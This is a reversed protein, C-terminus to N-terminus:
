PGFVGPYTGYTAPPFRDALRALVTWVSRLMGYLLPLVEFTTNRHELAVQLYAGPHDQMKAPTKAFTWTEMHDHSEVRGWVPQPTFGVDPPFDPRIAAHHAGTVLHLKRHKDINHFTDLDGLGMRIWRWQDSRGQYPQLWRLARRDRQSLKKLRRGEFSAFEHADFCIPFQSTNEVGDPVTRRGYHRVHLQFVLHDLASRFDFMIEGALLGWDPDIVPLQRLYFRYELGGRDVETRVPWAKTPPWADRIQDQLVYLQSEARWLKALPGELSGAM